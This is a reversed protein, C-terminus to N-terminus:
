EHYKAVPRGQSSYKGALTDSDAKYSIKDKIGLSRLQERVRRVDVEDTWDYTYVCIVKRDKHLAHRNEKATAVKAAVGLLGQETAAKVKAWFEDVDPDPVFILWKGSNETAAHYAGTEREARLWYRDSEKSPLEADSPM